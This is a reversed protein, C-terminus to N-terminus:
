TEGGFLQDRFNFVSPALGQNALTSSFADLNKVGMMDLLRANQGTNPNSAAPPRKGQFGAYAPDDGTIEHPIILQWFINPNAFLGNPNDYIPDTVGAPPFTPNAAAGAGSATW